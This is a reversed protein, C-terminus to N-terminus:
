AEDGFTATFSDTKVPGARVVNVRVDEEALRYSLYRCLTELVAKSAAAFDYSGCFSEVGVSSLGVVYRPYRGFVRKIRRTYEVLPWATYQISRNLARLAYDDLDRVLLSMAVNSILMDVGTTQQRLDDLLVDTDEDSSVDAQVLLPEPAGAEAYARLLDDEDASGFNYTLVCRAGQRGFALGTARGIGM